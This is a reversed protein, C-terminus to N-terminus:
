GTSGSGSNGQPAGGPLILGGAPPSAAKSGTIIQLITLVFAVLLAILGLYFAILGQWREIVGLAAAVSFLGMPVSFITLISAYDTNKLREPALAVFATAFTVLLASAETLDSYLIPM